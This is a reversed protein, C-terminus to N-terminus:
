SHRNGSEQEIGAVFWDAEATDTARQVYWIESFAQAEADQEERIMGSFRVSAVVRQSEQAFSLLSADLSVVETFQQEGGYSQREMTLQAFLEPTTYDRIDKMDGVDWAAQLRIFHTKSGNLFESENFWVPRQGDDLAVAEDSAMGGGAFGGSQGSGNQPIDQQPQYSGGGAAAHAQRQMPSTGASRAAGGKLMRFLWLGGFVLGIILIFDMFQFGEFGDGFFMSALLGGAVLGALPGLWRSAGSTRGTSNRAPAAQRSSQQSAKPASRGFSKGGGFRRAEADNIVLTFSMVFVMSMALLAKTFWM